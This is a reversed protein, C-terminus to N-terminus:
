AGGPSKAKARRDMEEPSVDEVHTAFAWQHGFPDMLMGSRDGYFKDEVPRLEKAGAKLAQRFVADVDPVYILFSASTGGITEPSRADMAPVEDALMIIAKGIAIEAHGIMGDPGPFRM